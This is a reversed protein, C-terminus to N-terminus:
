RIELNITLILLKSQEQCKEFCMLTENIQSLSLNNTKCILSHKDSIHSKVDNIAIYLNTIGNLIDSIMKQYKLRAEEKKQFEMMARSMQFVNEMADQQIKQIRYGQSYPKTAPKKGKCKKQTQPKKIMNLDSSSAVPATKTVQKAPPPNNKRWKAILLMMNKKEMLPDWGNLLKLTNPHGMFKRVTLYSNMRNKWLDALIQYKKAALCQQSGKYQRQLHGSLSKTANEARKSPLVTNDAESHCLKDTQANNVSGQGEAASQSRGYDNRYCNQSNRPSSYSLRNPLGKAKQLTNIIDLSTLESFIPEQQNHTMIVTSNNESNLTSEPIITTVTSVSEINEQRVM